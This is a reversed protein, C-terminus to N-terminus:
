KRKKNSSRQDVIFKIIMMVVILFSPGWIFWFETTLLWCYITFLLFIVHSMIWKSPKICIASPLFSFYFLFLCYLFAFLFVDKM